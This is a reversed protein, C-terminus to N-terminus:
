SIKKYKDLITGDQPCIYNGSSDKKLSNTSQFSKNCEKCIYMFGQEESKSENSDSQRSENKSIKQTESDFRPRIKAKFPLVDLLVNLSDKTGFIILVERQNHKYHSIFFEHDPLQEARSKAEYLQPTENQINQENLDDFIIKYDMQPFKENGLFRDEGLNGISKLIVM